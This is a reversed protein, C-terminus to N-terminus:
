LKSVRANDLPAAFSHPLDFLRIANDRLFHPWVSDKFPVKPMEQFIRELSLGFPYYGAYLVQRAGRTNAFDIIEKPYHQPAFASTSYYLNPYKIMLKVALDVWPEGGHRMVFRLDPFFYCVDDILEVHQPAMPLRPGPVGVTCCFPLQLEVCKAYIPYWRRDNIPVQPNLMSPSGTVAKIGLERYLKEIHRVEEMGLNPNAEYCGFFRNPFRRLAQLAPSDVTYSNVVIMAVEIGVADMKAVTHAVYDDQKGADPIDKFMYQAPMKFVQKSEEDLFAPAMSKYWSTNDEGPIGLMTDIVGIGQPPAM